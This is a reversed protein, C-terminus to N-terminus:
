IFALWAIYCHIIFVYFYVLIVPIILIHALSRSRFKWLCITCILVLILKMVVFASASIQLWNQMLPNIESAIGESVWYFTAIADIINLIILLILIRGFTYNNFRM